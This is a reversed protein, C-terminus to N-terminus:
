IYKKNTNQMQSKYYKLHVRSIYELDLESQNM